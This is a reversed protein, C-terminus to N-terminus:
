AYLSSFEDFLKAESNTGKLPLGSKVPPFYIMLSKFMFVFAHSVLTECVWRICTVSIVSRIIDITYVGGSGNVPRLVIFSLADVM